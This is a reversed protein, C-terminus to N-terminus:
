GRKKRCCWDLRRRGDGSEPVGDDDGVVRLHREPELDRRAAVSTWPNKKSPSRFIPEDDPVNTSPASLSSYSWRFVVSSALSSPSASTPVYRFLRGFEFGCGIRMRRKVGTASRHGPRAPARRCQSIRRTASSTDAGRSVRVHFTKRRWDPASTLPVIRRTSPSVPVSTPWQCFSLSTSLWKAPSRGFRKSAFSLGSPVSATVSLPM